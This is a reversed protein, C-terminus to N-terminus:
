RIHRMHKVADCDHLGDTAKRAQGAKFKAVDIQGISQQIRYSAKPFEFRNIYVRFLVESLFPDIWALSAKSVKRIEYEVTPNM